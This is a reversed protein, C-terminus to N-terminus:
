TKVKVRERFMFEETANEFHLVIEYKLGGLFLCDFTSFTVDGGGYIQEQGGYM